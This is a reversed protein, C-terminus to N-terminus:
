KAEWIVRLLPFLTAGTGTKGMGHNVQMGKRVYGQGGQLRM